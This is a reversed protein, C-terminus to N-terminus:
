WIQMFCVPNSSDVIKNERIKHIKYKYNWSPLFLIIPSFMYRKTSKLQMMNFVNNLVLFLLLLLYDFHEM